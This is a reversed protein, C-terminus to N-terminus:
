EAAEHGSEAIIVEDLLQKRHRFQEAAAGDSANPGEGLRVLM